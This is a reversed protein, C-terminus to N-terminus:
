GPGSSSRTPEAIGGKVDIDAIALGPATTGPPRSSGAWPDVIQSLGIFNAGGLEGVFNSSM